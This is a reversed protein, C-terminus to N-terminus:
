LQASHSLNCLMQVVDNVEQYQSAKNNDRKSKSCIPIMWKIGDFLQEEMKKNQKSKEKKHDAAYECARERNLFAKEM